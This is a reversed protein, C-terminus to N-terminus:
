TLSDELRDQILDVVRQCIRRDGCVAIEVFMFSRKSKLQASNAGSPSKTAFAGNMGM